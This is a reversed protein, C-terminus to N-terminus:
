ENMDDPYIVSDFIEGSEEDVIDITVNYDDPNVGNMLQYFLGSIGLSFAAIGDFSNEYVEQDVAVTFSSYDNNATVDSISVFDASSVLEAMTSEIETAYDSLWEDHVSEPMTYTVSGDDNVTVETIGVEDAEAKIQDTDLEGEYFSAPITVEVDALREEAGDEEVDGQENSGDIDQQDSEDQSCASILFVALLLVSLLILLRKM